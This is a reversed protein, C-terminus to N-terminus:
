HMETCHAMSQGQNGKIARSGHGRARRQKCQQQHIRFRSDKHIKSPHQSASAVRWSLQTVLTIVTCAACAGVPMGEDECIKM